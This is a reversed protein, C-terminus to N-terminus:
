NEKKITAGTIGLAKLSTAVSQAFDRTGEFTMELHWRFVSQSIQSDGVIVAPSKDFEDAQLPEPLPEQELAARMAEQAAKFAEMEADKACLKDELELAGILDLTDSYFKIVESKHALQKEQLSNYGRLAEQAKDLFDSIAKAEQTSRNLWTQDLIADFSIVDAMVGACEIYESRLIEYRMAKYQEDAADVQQKIAERASDIKSTIAKVRGEFEKLPAEYVKKIRKREDEIPAKLKNLEAMIARGMKIQDYDAPNLQEGVFPAIKREVEADLASLNDYLVAPTYTVQLSTEEPDIVEAFAEIVENSM